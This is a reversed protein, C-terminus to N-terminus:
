SRAAMARVVADLERAIVRAADAYKRANGGACGSLPDPLVLPILPLRPLVVYRPVRLAHFVASVVLDDSGCCAANCAALRTALAAFGPMRLTRMRMAVGSFGECVDVPALVAGSLLESVDVSETYAEACDFARAVDEGWFRARQGSSSVVVAAAAGAPAGREAVREAVQVADVLVSVTPSAMAFDDDGVVVIANSDTANCLPTALGGVYKTLPGWDLPVRNVRLKRAVDARLMPPVLLAAAAADSPYAVGSRLHVRPLHLWIETVCSFDSANLAECVRALRSPTTTLMYIVADGNVPPSSASANM